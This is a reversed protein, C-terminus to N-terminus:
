ISFPIMDADSQVPIHSATKPCHKGKAFFCPAILSFLNSLFSVLLSSDQRLYRLQLLLLAADLLLDFKIHLVISKESLLIRQPKKKLLDGIIFFAPQFAFHSKKDINTHARIEYPIILREARTHIKVICM